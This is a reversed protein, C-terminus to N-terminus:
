PLKLIHPPSDGAGLFHGYDKLSAYCYFRRFTLSDKQTDLAYLGSCRDSDTHIVPKVVPEKVFAAKM